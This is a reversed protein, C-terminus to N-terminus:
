LYIHYHGWNVLGESGWNPVEVVSMLGIFLFVVQLFGVVGTLGSSAKQSPEGRDIPPADGHVFM